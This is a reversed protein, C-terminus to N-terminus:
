AEAPRRRGRWGRVDWCNKINSTKPRGRGRGQGLGPRGGPRRPRPGDRGASGQGLWDVQPYFM